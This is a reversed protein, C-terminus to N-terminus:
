NEKAREKISKIKTALKVRETNLRSVLDSLLTDVSVLEDADDADLSLKNNKILLRNFDKQSIEVTSWRYGCDGCEHRRTRYPVNNKRSNIVFTNTSKCKSCCEIDEFEFMILKREASEKVTESRKDNKTGGFRICAYLQEMM